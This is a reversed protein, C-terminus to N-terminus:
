VASLPAELHLMYDEFAIPQTRNPLFSSEPMLATMNAWYKACMQCACFM